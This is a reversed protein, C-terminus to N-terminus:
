RLMEEIEPWDAPVWLRYTIPSARGCVCEVPYVATAWDDQAATRKGKGVKLEAFIVQGHRALTLDPYGPDTATPRWYPDRHVKWGCLRAYEVIADSFQRETQFDAVASVVM